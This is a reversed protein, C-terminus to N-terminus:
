AVLGPQGVTWQGVRKLQEHVVLAAEPLAAHWGLGGGHGIEGVVRRREEFGDAPVVAEDEAHGEAAHHGLLQRETVGVPDAPEDQGARGRTACATRGIRKVLESGQVGVGPDGALHLQEVGPPVLVPAGSVGLHDGQDRASQVYPGLLGSGHTGPSALWSAARAWCSM